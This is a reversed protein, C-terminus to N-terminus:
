GRTTASTAYRERAIPSFSVAHTPPRAV